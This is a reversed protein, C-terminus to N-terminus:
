FEAVVDFVVHDLPGARAAAERAERFSLGVAVVTSTRNNFAVVKGRLREVETPNAELYSDFPRVEAPETSQLQIVLADNLQARLEEVESRLRDVESQSAPTSFSRWKKHLGKVPLCHPPEQAHVVGAQRRKAAHKLLEEHLATM